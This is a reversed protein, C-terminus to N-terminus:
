LGFMPLCPTLGHITVPITRHAEWAARTLRLRRHVALQDRVILRADGDHRYGLKRSVGLSAPNETWAESVAEAVGLGTFALDLVAARMETGLGQRHYRQGLWSGTGVERSISIRRGRVGQTGVVVGDRFAVLNLSWDEATWGGLAALHYQIVDRALVEKPADTWPVGFPMADPDHVGDVALEGLESLEDLTPLRLELNPTTLRMDVLPLHDRLM